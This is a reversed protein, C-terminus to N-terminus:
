AEALVPPTLFDAWVLEVVVTVEATGISAGTLDVTYQVTQVYNSTQVVTMTITAIDRDALSSGASASESVESVASNSGSGDGRMARAFHAVLSRAARNAGATAGVHQVVAHVHCSYAGNDASGAEDTTSITFLPTPTNDLIGAKSFVGVIRNTIGGGVLTRLREADAEIPKSGLTRRLM